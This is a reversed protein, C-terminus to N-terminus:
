FRLIRWPQLGSDVPAKLQKSKLQAKLGASPLVCDEPFACTSEGRTETLPYRGLDAVWPFSLCSVVLFPLFASFISLWTQLFFM